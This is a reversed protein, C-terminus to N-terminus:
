RFGIAALTSYKTGLTREIDNFHNVDEEMDITVEPYFSILRELEYKLDNAYVKVAGVESELDDFLYGRKQIIQRIM